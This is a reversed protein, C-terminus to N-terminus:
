SSSVAYVKPDTGARAYVLSGAPVDDGFVLEDSKGNKEHVTATLSPANLGYKKLDAPKDEVISDATLPSLSSAVGNVADQDAPLPQPGTIAWKGNERQLTIASGDKKKLDIGQIQGEPIDALKPSAPTAPSASSQPHRKAWWVAGSLAALVIAAILLNKTKM